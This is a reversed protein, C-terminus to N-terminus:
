DIPILDHWGGCVASVLMSTSIRDHLAVACSLCLIIGRLRKKSAIIATQDKLNTLRRVLYSALTKDGVKGNNRLNFWDLGCLLAFLADPVEGSLDNGESRAFWDCSQLILRVRAALGRNLTPLFMFGRAVCRLDLSRTEPLYARVLKPIVRMPGDGTLRTLKLNPPSGLLENTLKPRAECALTLSNHWWGENLMEQMTPMTEAM